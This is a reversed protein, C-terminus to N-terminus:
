TTTIRTSDFRAIERIGIALNTTGAPSPSFGLRVSPV